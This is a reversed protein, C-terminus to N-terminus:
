FQMKSYQETIKYYLIKYRNIAIKDPDNRNFDRIINKCQIAPALM